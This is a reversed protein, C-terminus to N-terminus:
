RGSHSLHFITWISVRCCHYVVLILLRHAASSLPLMVHDMSKRTRSPPYDFPGSIRAHRPDPRLSVARRHTWFIPHKQRRPRHLKKQALCQSLM